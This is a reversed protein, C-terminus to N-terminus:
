WGQARAVSGGTKIVSKDTTMSKASNYWWYVNRVHYIEMRIITYLIDYIMYFVICSSGHVPDLSSPWSLFYIIEPLYQFAVTLGEHLFPVSCRRVIVACVCRYACVHVCVCAGVCMCVAPVWIVTTFTNMLYCDTHVPANM